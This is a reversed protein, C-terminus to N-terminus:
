VITRDKTGDGQNWSYSDNFRALINSQEVGGCPLCPVGQGLGPVIRAVKGPGRDRLAYEVSGVHIPVEVGIAELIISLTDFTLAARYFPLLSVPWGM